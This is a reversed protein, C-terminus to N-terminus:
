LQTPLWERWAAVCLGCWCGAMSENGIHWMRVAPHGAYRAAIARVVREAHFLFAPHTIDIEQRSGWGVRQGTASEAAVMVCVCATM